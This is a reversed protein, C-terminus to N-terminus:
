IIYTRSIEIFVLGWTDIIIYARCFHKACLKHADDPVPGRNGCFNMYRGSSKCFYFIIEVFKIKKRENETTYSVNLSTYVCADM